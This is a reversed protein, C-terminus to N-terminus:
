LAQPLMAIWLCCFIYHASHIWSSRVQYLGRCLRKHLLLPDRRPILISEGKAINFEDWYSRRIAKEKEERRQQRSDPRLTARALAYCSQDQQKGTNCLLVQQFGNGRDSRATSTSLSAMDFTHVHKSALLNDSTGVLVNRGRSSLHGALLTWVKGSDGPSKEKPSPAPNPRSPSPSFKTPLMGSKDECTFHPLSFSLRRGSGGSHGLSTLFSVPTFSTSSQPAPLPWGKLGAHLLSEQQHSKNWSSTAWPTGWEPNIKFDPRFCSTWVTSSPPFALHWIAKQGPLQQRSLILLFCHKNAMYLKFATLFM